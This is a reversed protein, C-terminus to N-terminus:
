AVKMEIGHVYCYTAFAEGLDRAILDCHEATITDGESLHRAIIAETHKESEFIFSRNKMFELLFVVASNLASAPDTKARNGLLEDLTDLDLDVRDFELIPNVRYSGAQQVIFSNAKGMHLLFRFQGFLVVVGVVDDGRVDFAIVHDLVSRGDAHWPLNRIPDLMDVLKEASVAGAGGTVFQRICDFESRLFAERNHLAFLNCAMKAIGRFGDPGLEHHLSMMPAQQSRQEASLLVAQADVHPAHKALWGGMHRRAEEMTRFEAHVKRAGDGADIVSFLPKSLTPKAGPGLDYQRGDEAPLNRLPPPSGGDGKNTNLMVRFPDLLKLVAADITRGMIDNTAKDILGRAELRGGLANLLVHESSDNVIANMSYIDIRMGPERVSFYACEAFTPRMRDGDVTQLFLVLALVALRRSFGRGAM